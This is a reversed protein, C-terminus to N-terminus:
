FGCVLYERSNYLIIIWPQKSESRGTILVSILCGLILWLRALKKKNKELQPVAAEVNKKADWVIEM